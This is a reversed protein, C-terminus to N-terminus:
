SLVTSIQFYWTSRRHAACVNELSPVLDAVYGAMIKLFVDSNEVLWSLSHEVMGQMLHSLADIPRERGRDRGTAFNITAAMIVNKRGDPRNFILLHRHCEAM